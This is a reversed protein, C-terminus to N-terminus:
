QYNLHLELENWYLISFIPNFNSDGCERMQWPKYSLFMSLFKLRMGNYYSIIEVYYMISDIKITGLWDKFISQHFVFLRLKGGYLGSGWLINESLWNWLWPNEMYLCVHFIEVTTWSCRVIVFSKGNKNWLSEKEKYM